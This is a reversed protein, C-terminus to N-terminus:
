RAQGYFREREAGWQGFFKMQFSANCEHTHAAPTRQPCICDREVPRITPHSM